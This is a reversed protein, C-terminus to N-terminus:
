QGNPYGKNFLDDCKIHLALYYICATKTKHTETLATSPSELAAQIKPKGEKKGQRNVQRGRERGEKKNWLKRVRAIHFFTWFHSKLRKMPPPSIMLQSLNYQFLMFVYITNLLTHLLIKPNSKLDRFMREKSKVLKVELSILSRNSVEKLERWEEKGKEWGKFVSSCFLPLFHSFFPTM